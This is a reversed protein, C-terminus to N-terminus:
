LGYGFEDSLRIRSCGLMQNISQYLISVAQADERDLISTSADSAGMFQHAMGVVNQDITKRNPGNFNEIHKVGTLLVGKLTLLTDVAYGSLGTKFRSLCHQTSSISHFAYGIRGM